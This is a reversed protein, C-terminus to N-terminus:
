CHKPRPGKTAMAFGQNKIIELFKQVKEAKPIPPNDKQFLFDDGYKLKMIPVVSTRLLDIYRDANLNGEIVRYSLIDNPLVL